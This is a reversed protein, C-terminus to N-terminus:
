QEFQREYLYWQIWHLVVYMLTVPGQGVSITVLIRTLVVGEM